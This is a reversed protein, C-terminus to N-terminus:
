QELRQLIEFLLLHSAPKYNGSNYRNCKCVILDKERTMLVFRGCMKLQRAFFEKGIIVSGIIFSGFLVSDSDLHSPLLYDATFRGTRVNNGFSYRFGFELNPIKPLFPTLMGSSVSIADDGRPCGCDNPPNNHAPFQAVGQADAVTSLACALLLLLSLILLIRGTSCSGNV